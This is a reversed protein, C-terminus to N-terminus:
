PWNVPPAQKRTVNSFAAEFFPASGFYRFCGWAFYGAAPVSAEIALQCTPCIVPMRLDDRLRTFVRRGALLPQKRAIAAGFDEGVM